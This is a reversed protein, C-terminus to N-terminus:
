FKANGLCWVPQIKWRYHGTIKYAFLTAEERAGQGINHIVMPENTEPSTKDSVIAIHPLNGPLMQTVIDGPQYDKALKSVPLATGKREFFVQLNPVRRHDINADPNKLGWSKPYASFNAKMDDNVAWQLDTGFADRYARIIVDTCVGVERPVDGGPFNLKRYTPDYYKTVGVQARAAKILTVFWPNAPEAYGYTTALALAVPIIILTRRTIM